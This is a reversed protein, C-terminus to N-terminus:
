HGSPVISNYALIDINMVYFVFKFTEFFLFLGRWLEYEMYEGKYHPRNKYCPIIVDNAM